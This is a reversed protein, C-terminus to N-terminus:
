SGQAPFARNSLGCACIGGAVHFLSQNLAASSSTGLLTSLFHTQLAQWPGNQNALSVQGELSGAALCKAWPLTSQM